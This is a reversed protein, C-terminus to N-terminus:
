QIKQKNITYELFITFFLIGSILAWLNPGTPTDFSVGFDVAALITGILNLFQLFRRIVNM